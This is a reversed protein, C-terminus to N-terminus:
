KDSGNVPEKIELMEFNWVLKYNDMCYNLFEGFQRHQKLKNAFALNKDYIEFMGRNENTRNKIKRMVNGKVNFFLSCPNEGQM